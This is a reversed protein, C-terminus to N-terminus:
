SHKLSPSSDCWPALFSRRSSLGPWQTVPSQERAGYPGALLRQVPGTHIAGPHAEAQHRGFLCAFASAGEVTCRDTM